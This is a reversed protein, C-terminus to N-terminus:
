GGRAVRREWCVADDTLEELRVASGVRRAREAGTRAEFAYVRDGNAAVCDGVGSLGTCECGM